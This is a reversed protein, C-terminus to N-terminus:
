AIEVVGRLLGVRGQRRIFLRRCDIRLRDCRLLSQSVEHQALVMEVLSRLIDFGQEIRAVALDWSTVVFPEYRETLLVDGLSNIGQLFYDFFYGVQCCCVVVQAHGLHIVLLWANGLSGEICGNLEPWLEGSSIHGQELQMYLLLGKGFGNCRPFFHELQLWVINFRM